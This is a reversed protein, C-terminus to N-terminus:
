KQHQEILIESIWTVRRKVPNLSGRGLVKMEYGIRCPEFNFCGLIQHFQNMKVTCGAIRFGSIKLLLCFLRSKSHVIFSSAGFSM